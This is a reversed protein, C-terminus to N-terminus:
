RSNTKAAPPRHLAGHGLLLAGAADLQALAGGAVGAEGALEAAGAVEGELAVGHAGDALGALTVAVGAGAVGVGADALTGGDPHLDEVLDHALLAGVAALLPDDGSLGRTVVVTDVATRVVEAVEVGPEALDDEDVSLDRAVAAVVGHTVVTLQAGLAVKAVRRPPLALVALGAGTGQCLVVEGLGAVVDAPRTVALADALWVVHAWCTALAARAIESVGINWTIYFVRKM